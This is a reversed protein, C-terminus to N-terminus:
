FEMEKKSFAVTSLVAAVVVYAAYGIIPLVLPDGGILGIMIKDTLGSLLYDRINLNLLNILVNILTGVVGFAFLIYTVIAFTSRQLGYAVISSIVSYALTMLLYKSAIAYLQAVQGTAVPCGFLSYLAYHFLPLIAFFVLNLLAALIIKTIVIKTKSLGYGVLTILNKSNLDDTYIAAFLFGGALAPLFYFVSSADDIVSQGGFGGSRVFVFLLYAAAMIAFYIYISKKHLLRYIEGQIM